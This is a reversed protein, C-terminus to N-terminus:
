GRSILEDFFKEEIFKKIRLGNKGDFHKVYKESAHKRKDFMDDQGKKIMELFEILDQENYVTYYNKLLEEHYPQSYGDSRYMVCIPKLTPLASCTIGCFADTLIADAISYAVDYSANEDFVVNASLNCYERMRELDRMDWFGNTLLEIIFTEHPRFIFGMNPNKDAYEFLLRAYLDFTIHETIINNYIGHDTTWLITKRNKLKEWEKPYYKNQCANFIGDYKANGMEVLKNGMYGYDKLDHYLMSDFLYYDPYYKEFGYKSFEWFEGASYAYKILTMSAAIVLKSNERVKYFPTRDRPHTIIFIDPQDKEVDYNEGRVHRYGMESMQKERLDIDKSTTGLIVLLDYQKDQDFAECITKIANWTNYSVHMIRVKIKEGNERKEKIQKKPFINSLLFQNTVERVNIKKCRMGQQLAYINKIKEKKVFRKLNSEMEYNLKEDEISLIVCVDECYLSEFTKVSIINDNYRCLTNDIIYRPVINYCERLIHNVKIGNEGYPYIAFNHVGNDICNQIVYRIIKDEFM